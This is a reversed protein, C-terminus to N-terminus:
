LYYCLGVLFSTCIFLTVKLQISYLVCTLCTQINIKARWIGFDHCFNLCIHSDLYLTHKILIDLYLEVNDASYIVTNIWVYAPGM